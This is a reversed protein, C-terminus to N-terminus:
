ESEVFPILSGEVFQNPRWGKAMRELLFSDAAGIGLSGGAAVLVPLGAM